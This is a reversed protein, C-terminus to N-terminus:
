FKFSLTALVNFPAQPKLSYSTTGYINESTLNNFNVRLAWKEREYGVMADLRYYGPLNFVSTSVGEGALPFGAPCGTAAYVGLGVKFGKLAAKQFAYTAWVSGSHEPVGFLATGSPINTDNSVYADTYAYTAIINFGTALEAAIDLEIGKSKQEGTQISFNPDVPDTISINEKTIHFAALNASLRSGLDLKLGVEHQQGEEPELASGDRTRGGIIPDFYDSFGYYLSVSEVPQFVLGARPSLHWNTETTSNKELFDLSEFETADYRLGLLLKWKESLEIHDQLYVGVVRNESGSQSGPKSIPGIQGTYRPHYLDINNVVGGGPTNYGFVEEVYRLEVGALLTHKLSGTNFRGTIENQLTYEDLGYFGRYTQNQRDLTRHDPLLGTAMVGFEDTEASNWRFGSHFSWDDNFKHDFLYGASWSEVGLHNLGPEGYFRSIPVTLAEPEFPLGYEFVDDYQQYQGFVTLSTDEALKFTFSPAIFTKEFGHYDIFSGADDYTGILRALVNGDQTLSGTWDLAARFTDFSGYTLESRLTSGPEPRKTVINLTGGIGGSGYLVSSPGKLIELREVAFIDYSTIVSDTRFGDILINSEFGRILFTPTPLDGYDFGQRQVGSVNLAAQDIRTLGRDEILQRSIVQVSQPIDRLPVDLKTAASAESATYAPSQSTVVVEPLTQPQGGPKNNEPKAAPKAAEQASVALSLTALIAAM